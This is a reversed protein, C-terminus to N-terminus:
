GKSFRIKRMKLFERKRQWVDVFLRYAAEVDPSDSTVQVGLLKDHLEVLKNRIAPLGLPVKSM